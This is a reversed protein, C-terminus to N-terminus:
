APLEQLQQALGIAWLKSECLIKSKAINYELTKPCILKGSLFIRLILMVNILIM